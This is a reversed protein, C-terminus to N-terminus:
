EDDEFSRVFNGDEDWEIDILGNMYAEYITDSPCRLYLSRTDEKPEDM